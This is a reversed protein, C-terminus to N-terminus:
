NTESKCPSSAAQQPHYGFVTGRSLEVRDGTSLGYNVAYPQLHKEVDNPSAYWTVTFPQTMEKPNRNAEAGRGSYARNLPDLSWRVTDGAVVRTLSGSSKGNKFQVDAYLDRDSNNHLMLTAASLSSTLFILLFSFSKLLRM